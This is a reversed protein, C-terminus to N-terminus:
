NKKFPNDFNGEDAETILRILEMVAREAFVDDNIHADVEVINIKKNMNDKISDFLARNAKPDDFVGGAVDIQSLGKIPLLVSVKGTSMNLKQALREGLMKNEETNTRMLTVDPAWNYFQRDRYENPVTDPQAFNVMDLCGPVVLQPIGLESAANLRDPGASCVGQCLDDALETTTIDLVATFYGDRILNEMTRGGAGNAHFVLVEYGLHTLSVRCRDVCATTNGFMSIAISKTADEQNVHELKSMGCIALTAQRMMLRSVRNLGAVDVITPMLAIDKDGVQRSLDKTAMTSLCLKPIGIPVGAMASLVMYTGGGGGMGIVAKVKDAQVLDALISAAGRGMVDVSVGRDKKERLEAISVGAASAVRDSEIDVFFLDTSDLVGTNIAIVSEGQEIICQRLFSFDESKSDFCGLMVIGRDIGRYM